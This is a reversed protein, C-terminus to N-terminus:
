MVTSSPKGGAFRDIAHHNAVGEIIYLNGRTAVPRAAGLNCEPAVAHGQNGFPVDVSRRKRTLFAEIKGRMIFQNRGIHQSGGTITATAGFFAALGLLVILNAPTMVGPPHGKVLKISSNCGSKLKFPNPSLTLSPTWLCGVM